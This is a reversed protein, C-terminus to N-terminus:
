RKEPVGGTCRPNCKFGNGDRELCKKCVRGQRGIFLIVEGRVDAGCLATAPDCCVIHDIESPM